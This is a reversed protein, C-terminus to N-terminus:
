RDREIVVRRPQLTRGAADYSAVAVLNGGRDLLAVEITDDELPEPCPVSQGFAARKCDAVGLRVAPLEAVARVPPLLAASLSAADELCAFDVADEIRFPGIATRELEEIVGGCGLKEGLDRGIARVYTGSGCAVDVELRPYAYARVALAHVEVTRPELQVAEGRRALKYARQGEVHVASYAPPRQQIRGVLTALAADVAARAPPEPVAVEELPGDVDDTPSRVGLRIVARYHKTMRQVYEILRTARGVCVVLVGTALPDLTGAHGAGVRGALRQVRDVVRRSTIGKPKNVNLLGCPDNHSM